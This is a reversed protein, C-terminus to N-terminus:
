RYTVTMVGTDGTTVITLNTGFAADFTWQGAVADIEAIQTGTAAPGDYVKITTTAVYVNLTHLVGPSAKVVTTAAAGTILLFSNEQIIKVVDLTTDVGAAANKCAKDLLTPLAM